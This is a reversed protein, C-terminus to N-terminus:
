CKIPRRLNRLRLTAAVFDSLKPIFYDIPKQRMFRYGKMQKGKLCNWLLVESLVGKKRLKRALTKLKPKYYIKM